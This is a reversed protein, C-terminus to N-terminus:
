GQDSASGHGFLTWEREEAEGGVFFPLLEHALALALSAAHNKHRRLFEPVCVGM